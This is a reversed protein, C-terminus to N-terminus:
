RGRTTLHGIAEDGNEGLVRVRYDLTSRNVGHKRATESMTLSEGCVTVRRNDRRNNAQIGRTAWRVNGPEYNGNVDIRDLTAYRSPRAGVDALFAGFDNRWRDCVTIGRGGYNTYGPQNQGYCRRNMSLWTNYTSRREGSQGHRTLLERRLCGCSRTKGTILDRARLEKVSGCSCHCVWVTTTGSNKARYLVELRGFERGTLNQFVPM